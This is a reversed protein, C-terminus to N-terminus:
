VNEPFELTAHLDPTDVGGVEHEFTMTKLREVAGNEDKNLEVMQTWTVSWASLGKGKALEPRYENAVRVRSPIKFCVGWRERAVISAVLAALDMAVDGRKADGVNTRAICVAYFTADTLYTQADIPLSSCFVLVCASSPLTLNGTTDVDFPGEITRVEVSAPALRTGLTTVIADVVESPVSM